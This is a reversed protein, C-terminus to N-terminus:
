LAKLYKAAHKNIQILSVIALGLLSILCIPPMWTNVWLNANIPLGFAATCVNSFGIAATLTILVSLRSIREGVVPKTQEVGLSEQRARCYEQIMSFLLSLLGIVAIMLAFDYSLQVRPDVFLYYIPGIIWLIDGFKDLISDYYGGLKSGTDTLFAIVGDISDIYGSFILLLVGLLVWGGGLFWCELVWLAFFVGLISLKNPSLGLKAYAKGIKFVSKLYPRIPGKIEEIPATMDHNKCWQRFWDNFTVGERVTLKQRTLVAYIVFAITLASIAILYTWHFILWLDSM